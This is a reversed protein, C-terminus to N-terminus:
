IRVKGAGLEFICASPENRLLKALEMHGIISSQQVLHKRKSDSVNPFQKLYDEIEPTQFQKREIEDRVSSYCAQLKYIVGSIEE